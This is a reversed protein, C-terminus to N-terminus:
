EMRAIKERLLEIERAQEGIKSQLRDVRANEKIPRPMLGTEVAELSTDRWESLTAATVSLERSWDGWLCTL